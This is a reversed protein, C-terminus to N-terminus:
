YRSMLYGIPSAFWVSLIATLTCSVFSLRISYRIEKSELAELLDAFSTYSVDAVLLAVILLVYAVSLTTFTAFFPLDSGPRARQHQASM